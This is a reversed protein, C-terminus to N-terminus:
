QGASQHSVEQLEYLSRTKQPYRPIPFSQMTFRATESWKGRVLRVHAEHEPSFEGLYIPYADAARYSLILTRRPFRSTNPSSAHPTMADMFIVSGAPAELSVAQSEDVKEMVRGQFLGERSHSLLEGRHVEPIVQLCGNTTNADDLYFLVTVSDRNTLPYYSLDQHWEVISGISPAKMNLKSYHFVIDEGILSQIADLLKPSESVARFGAYYTCPEYIRRVVSGNAEQRPEMELRTRDHHALTAGSTVQQMEDLLATVESPNLFGPLVLYGLERYQRVATADLMDM